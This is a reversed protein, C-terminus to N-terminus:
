RRLGRAALQQRLERAAHYRSLAERAARRATPRTPRWCCGSKRACCSAPASSRARRRPTSAADHQVPHAGDALESSLAMMRPGLAAVVTLPKERPMPAQYPADRMAQSIPGCRRSRSATPTAACGKCWRGIRCASGSCFAATRNSTSAASAMPWRWRIAPTSTPSARDRRDAEAYQRAALLLAGACQTRPKRPDVARCLGVRRGAQRFGGGGSRDHQGDVDLRRAKGTGDGGRRASSSRSHSDGCRSRGARCRCAVPVRRSCSRLGPRCANLSAPRPKAAGAGRFMRYPARDM